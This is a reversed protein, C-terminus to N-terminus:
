SGAKLQGPFFIREVLFPLNAAIFALILLLTTSFNVTFGSLLHHRFM